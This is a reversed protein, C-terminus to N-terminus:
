PISLTYKTGAKLYVLLIRVCKTVCQPLCIRSILSGLCEQNSSLTVMVTLANLCEDRPASGRRKKVVGGTFGSSVGVRSEQVLITPSTSDQPSTVDHSREDQTALHSPPLPVSPSPHTVSLHPGSFIRSSTPTTNPTTNNTLSKRRSRFLPSGIRRIGSWKSRSKKKKPLTAFELETEVSAARPAHHPDPPTVGTSSSTPRAVVRGRPVDNSQVRRKAISLKDERGTTSSDCEVRGSDMGSPSKNEPTSQGLSGSEVIGNSHSELLTQNQNQDRGSTQELQSILDDFIAVTQEKSRRGM